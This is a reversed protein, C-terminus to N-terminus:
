SAAYKRLFKACVILNAAEAILARDLGTAALHALIATAQGEFFLAQQAASNCGDGVNPLEQPM